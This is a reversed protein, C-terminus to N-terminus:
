KGDEFHYRQIYAMGDFWHKYETDGIKFMGPGNRVMTGHLWSPISGTVQCEQPTDVNEFNEFLRECSMKQQVGGIYDHSSDEAIVTEFNEETLVM